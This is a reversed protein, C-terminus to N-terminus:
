SEGLEQDSIQVVDIKYQSKIHDIVTKLSALALVVPISNVQLTDLLLNATDAVETATFRKVDVMNHNMNM